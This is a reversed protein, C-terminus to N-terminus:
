VTGSKASARSAEIPSRRTHVTSTSTMPQSYRSGCSCPAPRASVASVGSGAQAPTTAAPTTTSSVTIPPPIREIVKTCANWYQSLSVAIATGASTTSPRNRDSARVNSRGAGGSNGRRCAGDRHAGVHQELHGLRHRNAAM